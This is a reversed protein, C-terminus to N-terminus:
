LTENANLKVRIMRDLGSLDQKLDVQAGPLADEFVKVLAPGQDYGIEFYARGNENLHDELQLAMREYLALGEHDAYLALDPEYAVVSEDMEAQGDRRIYPPNSVIIDFRQNAFAALLDSEVLDVQETLDLRKRNEWCVALAERSIDAATVKLRSAEGALTLAIAGSGTGVDLLSPRDVLFPEKKLDKLVWDVLLETEPRPILVREDVLFDRGYFPAEGLLYQAPRGKLLGAIWTPWREALWDPMTRTLNARLMGYNVKLAGTLLFDINDLSEGEDLGAATLEALAWKRAELLAIKPQKASAAHASRGAWYDFRGKGVENLEPLSRKEEEVM